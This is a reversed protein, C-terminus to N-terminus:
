HSFFSIIGPNIFNILLVICSIFNGQNKGDKIEILDKITHIKCFLSILEKGLFFIERLIGNDESEDSLALAQPIPFRSLPM